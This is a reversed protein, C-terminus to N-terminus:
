KEREPGRKVTPVVDTMFTEKSGDRKVNQREPGWKSIPVMGTM